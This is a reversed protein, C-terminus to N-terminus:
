NDIGALKAGEFGSIFWEYAVGLGEIREMILRFVKFGLRQSKLLCFTM